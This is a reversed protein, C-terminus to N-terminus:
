QVYQATCDYEQAGRHWLLQRGVRNREENGAGGDGHHRDVPLRADRLRQATGFFGDGRLGM